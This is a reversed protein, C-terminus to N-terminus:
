ESDEDAFLKNQAQPRIRPPRPGMGMAESPKFEEPRSSIGLDRGSPKAAYIALVTRGFTRCRLGQLVDDEGLHYPFAGIEIPYEIVVITDQGIAPSKCLTDLLKPYSVEEYPPTLTVLQFPKEQGFKQPAELFHEAMMKLVRVRPSLHLMDCNDSIMRACVGAADVFTARGVGRSLSELGLVGSGAFLDLALCDEQFVDTSSLMSFLAERVQEMMPRLFVGPAYVKRGRHLGGTLRITQLEQLKSSKGQPRVDRDGRIQDGRPNRSRSYSAMSTSHHCATRVMLAISIVGALSSGCNSPLQLLRTESVAKINPSPLPVVTKAFSVRWVTDPRETHHFCRPRGVHPQDLIASFTSALATMALNEFSVM